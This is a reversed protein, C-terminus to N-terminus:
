KNIITCHLSNKRSKQIPYMGSLHHHHYSKSTITLSLPFTFYNNFNSMPRGSDSSSISVRRRSVFTSSQILSISLDGQFLTSCQSGKSPRLCSLSLRLLSFYILLTSCLSRQVGFISSLLKLKFVILTDSM